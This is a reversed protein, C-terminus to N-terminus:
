KQKSKYHKLIRTRTWKFGFKFLLLIPLLYIGILVLVVPTYQKFYGTIIMKIFLLSHPNTFTKYCLYLTLFTAIILFIVGSNRKIM